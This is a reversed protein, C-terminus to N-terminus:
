TNYVCYSTNTEIAQIPDTDGCCVPLGVHMSWGAGRNTHWHGAYFFTVPFTDFVELSQQQIINKWAAAYEACFCHETNNNKFVHMARFSLVHRGNICANIYMIYM